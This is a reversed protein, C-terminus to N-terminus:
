IHGVHHELLKAQLDEISSFVIGRMGTKEAGRVNASSDDIYVAEEPSVGLKEVILRFIRPDPKIIGCESSIVVADFLDTLGHKEFIGRIFTGMTNSCLGIKYFPRLKRALAVVREDVNIFSKFESEVSRPTKKVLAGLTEYWARESLEGSDSRPCYSDKLRKAEKPAFYRAFWPPSIESCLVGFFDFIIAKPEM